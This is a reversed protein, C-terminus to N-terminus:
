WAPTAMDTMGLSRTHTAHIEEVYADKISKPIAIRDDICVCGNNVHLDKWFSHIYTSIQRCRDENDTLVCDRIEKRIADKSTLSAMLTSSFIKALAFNFADTYLDDTSPSTVRTTDTNTTSPTAPASPATSPGAEDAFRVKSPTSHKLQMLTEEDSHSMMLVNHFSNAVRQFNNLEEDLQNTTHNLAFLSHPINANEIKAISHSNNPTLESITNGNQTIESFERNRPVFESRLKDNSHPNNLAPKTLLNRM